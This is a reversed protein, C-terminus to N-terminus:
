HQQPEQYALIVKRSDDYTKQFPRTKEVTNPYIYYLFSVAEVVETMMFVQLSKQFIDKVTNLNKHGPIYAYRVPNFFIQKTNEFLEYM